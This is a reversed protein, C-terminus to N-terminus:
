SLVGQALRGAMHTLPLFRCAFLWGATLALFLLDPWGPRHRRGVPIDGHFGRCLMARYIRESREVTRIFLVGIIRGAVRMGLGQGGFARLERARSMRMAEELLVFLYRHLFLLQSVFLPPAGLDRLAQCVGPFSTTAILLLAASVTLSFKVLISAFSLWGGSIPVGLLVGAVATDFFPNFMGVFLAFPSVLAVRKALFRLPVEALSAMVVPFLFLPMLPALEHKPMSVTALIFATTAAVKARPDLGHVLTRRGALRDLQGLNLLAADLPM